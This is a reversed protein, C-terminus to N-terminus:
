GVGTGIKVITFSDRGTVHVKYIFYISTTDGGLYIRCRFYQYELVGGDSISRGFGGCDVSQPDLYRKSIWVSHSVRDNALGESWYWPGSGGSPKPAPAPAGRKLDAISAGKLNSILWCAECQGTVSFTLSFSAGKRTTGSCRFRNWERVTGYVKSDSTRDPQCDVRNIGPFREKLSAIAGARSILWTDVRAPAALSVEHGVGAILAVAVALLALRKSAKRM